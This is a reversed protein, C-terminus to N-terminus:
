QGTACCEFPEFQFKEDVVPHQNGDCQSRAAHEQPGQNGLASRGALEARRSGHLQDVTFLRHHDVHAFRMFKSGAVHAARLINGKALEFFLQRAQHFVLGQGHNQHARQARAGAARHRHSFFHAILLSL